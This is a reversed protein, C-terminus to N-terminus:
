SCPMDLATIPRRNPMCGAVTRQVPPPVLALAVGGRQKPLDGLEAVRALFQGNLAAEGGPKGLSAQNRDSIDLGRRHRADNPGETVLRERM